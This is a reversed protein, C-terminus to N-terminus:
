SKLSFNQVDSNWKKKEARERFERVDQDQPNDGLEDQIYTSAQHLFYERQQKDLDKRVKNQIENKMELM